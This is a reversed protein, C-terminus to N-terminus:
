YSLYHFFPVNPMGLTSNYVRDLCFKKFLKALDVFSNVFLWYHSPTGYFDCLSFMVYWTWSVLMAFYRATGFTTSMSHNVRKAPWCLWVKDHKKEFHFDKYAHQNFVGNSIYIHVKIIRDLCVIPVDWFTYSIWVTKWLKAQWCFQDLRCM